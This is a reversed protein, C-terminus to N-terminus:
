AAVTGGGPVLMAILNLVWSAVVGFLAPSTNHNAGGVAFHTSIAGNAVLAEHYYRAADWDADNDLESQVLLTPPHRPYEHPNRWYHAETLNKPCCGYQKAVSCTDWNSSGALDAIKDYRRMYCRRRRRPPRRRRRRCCCCLVLPRASSLQQMFICDCPALSKSQAEYAYCYQGGSSLIVLGRISYRTKAQPTIFDVQHAYDLFASAMAGGSSWGMLLLNETYGLGAAKEIAAEILSTSRNKVCMDCTPLCM